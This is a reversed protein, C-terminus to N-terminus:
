GVELLETWLGALSVSLIRHLVVVRKEGRRERGKERELLFGLFSFSSVRGDFGRGGRGGELAIRSPARKGDMYLDRRRGERRRGKAREAKSDLWVLVCRDAREREWVFTGRVEWCWYAFSSEGVGRRTLMTLLTLSEMM